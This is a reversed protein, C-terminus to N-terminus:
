TNDNNDDNPTGTPKNTHYVRSPSSSRETLFQEVKGSAYKYKICCRLTSAAFDYAILLSSTIPVGCLNMVSGFINPINDKGM